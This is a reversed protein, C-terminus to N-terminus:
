MKIYVRMPDRRDIHDLKYKRTGNEYLNRMLRELFRPFEVISMGHVFFSAMSKKADVDLRPERVGMDNLVDNFIKFQLNREDHNMGRALRMIARAESKHGAKWLDAILAKAEKRDM